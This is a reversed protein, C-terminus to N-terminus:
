ENAKREEVIKKYFEHTARTAPDINKGKEELYELINGSIVYVAEDLDRFALEQLQDLHLIIADRNPEIYDAVYLIKQLMSMNPAGTTHTRIADQIDRDLVGFKDAVIEAGLKAHLLGPNEYEVQDLFIGYQHCLDVKDEDPICKACDHLLGAIEARDPSDYHYNMALSAATFAVSISHWYRDYDLDEQLAEQIYTFYEMKM